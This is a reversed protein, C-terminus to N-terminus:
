EKNNDLKAEALVKPMCKPCISHSFKAESHKSVYAEVQDWAGKDDRINHCYSCIPIIGRLTKIESLAINLEVNAMRLINSEEKHKKIMFIIGIVGLISLLFYIGITINLDDKASSIVKRLPLTIELIGRVDGVKWNTEPSAPHTNHCNVCSERMVDAVAYRLLEKDKDLYFEYYPKAVSNSFHEWAKKRFDDVLGGTKKRWPFPYPSYLNTNVGSGNEAIKNGLMISLTAPLPIAKKGLYDHTVKLGHQEAASIVESTYITRFATIADSYLKANHLGSSKIVNEQLNNTYWIMGVSILFFLGFIFILIRYSM